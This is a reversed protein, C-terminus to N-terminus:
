CLRSRCPNDHAPAANSLDGLGRRKLEEDLVGRAIDTLDQSDAVLNILEDDYMRRYENTIRQWEQSPDIQM